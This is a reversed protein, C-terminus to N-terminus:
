LDKVFFIIWGINLIFMLDSYDGKIDFFGFILCIVFNLVM